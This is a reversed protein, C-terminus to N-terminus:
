VKPFLTKLGHTGDSPHDVAFDVFLLPAVQSLGLHTEYVEPNGLSFILMMEATWRGIGKVQTLSEIVAEDSM